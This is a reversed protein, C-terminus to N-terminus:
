HEFEGQVLKRQYNKFFYKLIKKYNKFENLNTIKTRLDIVLTYNLFFIDDFYISQNGDQVVSNM